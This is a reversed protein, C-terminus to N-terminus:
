FFPPFLAIPDFSSSCKGSVRIFPPSEQVQFPSTTQRATEKIWAGIDALVAEVPVYEKRTMTKFTTRGLQCFVCDLTCTKRPTLDVGLSRGFRRSPVPGFLYHYKQM